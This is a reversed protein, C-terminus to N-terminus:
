ATCGPNAACVFAVHSCTPVDEQDLCTEGQAACVADCTLLEDEASICPSFMPRCEGGACGGELMPDPKEMCTRGCAGCNESDSYLNVCEGDCVVEHEDCGVDGDGDGDGDGSGTVVIEPGSDSEGDKGDSGDSCGIMAGASVPLAVVIWRLRHLSTLPRSPSRLYTPNM